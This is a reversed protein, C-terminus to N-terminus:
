VKKWENFKLQATLNSYTNSEIISQVDLGNLIMNNVDKEVVNSPWIVIQNGSQIQQIMRDHIEKNRPENDYIYVPRSINLGKLNVDAGCMAISNKVFLSDFVGELVYVTEKKDIDDLGYIKPSDKFLKVTIYKARSSKKLSRGQLGILKNEYYLPIVIRPEDLNTNKFTPAITNVWAKFKEAYYFRTSDIRRDELYKRAVDNESARPLNIKIKFQPPKSKFDPTQAPFNKGTHGNVYKELCYEQHLSPDVLKLYNNFSINIGCNHCKYNTNNRVSYFFGRAKNKNRQSDGCLNCRCNYLSPNKMVFKELRTSVLLIYKVDVSDM